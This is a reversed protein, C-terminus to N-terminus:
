WRKKASGSATRNVSDGGQHLKQQIKKDVQDGGQADNVYDAKHTTLMEDKKKADQHRINRAVM